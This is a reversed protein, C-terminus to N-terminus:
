AKGLGMFEIMEPKLLGSARHTYTLERNIMFWFAAWSEHWKFYVPENEHGRPYILVTSDHKFFAMPKSPVQFRDVLLQWFQDFGLAEEPLGILGGFMHYITAGKKRFIILFDSDWDGYMTNCIAIGAVEDLSLSWDKNIKYEKFAIFHIIGDPSFHFGPTTM